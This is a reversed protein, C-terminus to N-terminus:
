RKRITWGQLKTFERGLGAPSVTTLCLCLAPARWSLDRPSAARSGHATEVRRLAFIVFPSRSSVGRCRCAVVIILSILWGKEDLSLDRELFLFECCSSRGIGCISRIPSAGTSTFPSLSLLRGGLTPGYEGAGIVLAAGVCPALAALGPFPTISDFAVIAVCDFPDGVISALDAAHRPM